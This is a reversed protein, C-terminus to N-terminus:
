RCRWPSSLALVQFYIYGLWAEQKGLLALSAEEPLHTCPPPLTCIGCRRLPELAAAAKVRHVSDDRRTLTRPSIVKLTNIESLFQKECFVQQASTSGLGIM